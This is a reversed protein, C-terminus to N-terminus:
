CLTVYLICVANGHTRLMGMDSHSFEDATSV